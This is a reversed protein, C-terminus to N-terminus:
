VISQRRKALMGRILAIFVGLMGGLVVGLALILAKKPKVPTEAAEAASDLTFVAVGDPSVSVKALFNLQNELERLGAIFPDDNQRNQLVDLEARIAKAGRMYMLNGDVFQELEGDSSTRSAKVQPAQLGVKDAVKLAESLRAIRDERLKRASERLVAIHGLISKKRTSVETTITDAIDKKTKQAALDSYGNAWEAARGSDASQVAVEFREPNNKVDPNSVSLMKNFQQRLQGKAKADQSGAQTPLYIQEFFERRLGESRLHQTFISYVNAVTFEALGAESRGLNYGAIDATRPPLISSKSEYVPTSLFAYGAALATVAFTVVSILLKQKWLNQALEFLDIEDSYGTAQIPSNANM